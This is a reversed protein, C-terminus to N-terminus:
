LVKNTHTHTHTNRTYRTRNTPSRRIPSRINGFAGLYQEPPYKGLDYSIIMIGLIPVRCEVIYSSLVGRINPQPIIDTAVPTKSCGPNCTRSLLPRFGPNTYMSEQPDMYSM